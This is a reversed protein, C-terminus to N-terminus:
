GCKAGGCPSGRSVAMSRRPLTFAGTDNKTLRRDSRVGLACQHVRPGRMFRWGKRRGGSTRASSRPNRGRSPCASTARSSRCTGGFFSGVGGAAGLRSRAAHAVRGAECRAIRRESTVSARPGAGVAGAVAAGRGGIELSVGREERGARPRTDRPLGRDRAVRAPRAAALREVGDRHVLAIRRRDIMRLDDEPFRTAPALDPADRGRPAAARPARGQAAVSRRRRRKSTGDVRRPGGRTAVEFRAARVTM